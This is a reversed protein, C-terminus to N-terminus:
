SRVTVLTTANGAENVDQVQLAAIDAQNLSTAAQLTLEPPKTGASYGQEPVTWTSLVESKGDALEAVLRCKRPGDVETVTFSVLTGWPKPDLSLDAKVGTKPDTAAVRKANASVSTSDSSQNAWPGTVVAGAGAAAGLIAAAAALM